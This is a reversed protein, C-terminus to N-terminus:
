FEGRLRALGCTLLIGLIVLGVRIWPVDKGPRVGISFAVGLQAALVLCIIVSLVRFGTGQLSWWAVTGYVAPIALLLSLGILPGALKWRLLANM